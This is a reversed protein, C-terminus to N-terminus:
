RGTGRKRAFLRVTAYRYGDAAALSAPVSQALRKAFTSYGGLANPVKGTVPQSDAM